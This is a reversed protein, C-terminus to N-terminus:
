ATACRAPGSADARREAQVRHRSGPRCRHRRGRLAYLAETMQECVRLSEGDTEDACYLGPPEANQMFVFQTRDGPTMVAFVENGLPSAHADQVDAQYAVASGGHAIPIM